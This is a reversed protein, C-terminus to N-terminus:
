SPLVVLTNLPTLSIAGRHQTSETPVAHAAGRPYWSHPIREMNLLQARLDCRSNVSIHSPPLRDGNLRLERAYTAPMLNRVVTAPTSGGVPDRLSTWYPMGTPLKHM